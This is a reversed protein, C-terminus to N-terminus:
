VRIIHRFGGNRRSRQDTYGLYELESVAVQFRSLAIAKDDIGAKAQFARMWEAAGISQDSEQLIQYAIATDTKNAPDALATSLAKRPNFAAVHVIPMYNPCEADLDVFLKRMLKDFRQVLESDDSRSAVQMMRLRASKTRPQGQIQQPNSAPFEPLM